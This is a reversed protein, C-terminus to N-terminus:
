HGFPTVDITMAMLGHRPTGSHAVFSAFENSNRLEQCKM